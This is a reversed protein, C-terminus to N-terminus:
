SRNDKVSSSIIDSISLFSMGKKTKLDHHDIFASIVYFGKIFFVSYLTAGLAILLMLPDQLFAASNIAMLCLVKDAIYM